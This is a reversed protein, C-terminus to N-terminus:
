SFTQVSKPFNPKKGTKQQNESLQQNKALNKSTKEQNEDVWRSFNTKLWDKAPKWFILM